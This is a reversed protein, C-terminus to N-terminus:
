YMDIFDVFPEKFHFIVTRDDAVEIRDIKEQYQKFNAGKFNEYTWKVDAATLPTGDHFKLGPRLRFAAKKFDAAMEAHEALSYTMEGQPMPKILADHVLYDYHQQTVAYSHTASQAMRSRARFAARGDPHRRVQRPETRDRSEQHRAEGAPGLPNATAGPGGGVGGAARRACSRARSGVAEGSEASRYRDFHYPGDRRGNM